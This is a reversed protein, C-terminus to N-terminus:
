PSHRVWEFSLHHEESPCISRILGLVQEAQLYLIQDFLIAAKGTPVKLLQAEREGLPTLDFSCAVKQIRLHYRNEILDFLSQNKLDDLALGPCLTSVIYATELLVPQGKIRRLRILKFVQEPAGEKFLSAMESPVVSAGKHVVQTDLATGYDLIRDCLAVGLVPGEVLRPKSAYTGKGQHKIVYGERALEMMAQRVVAKSVSFVKCYENETPLLDGEKLHGSLIQARIHDALQSYLKKGSSRELFASLM